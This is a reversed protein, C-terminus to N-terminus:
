INVSLWAILRSGVVAAMLGQWHAQPVADLMTEAPLSVVKATRQFICRMLHKQLNLCWDFTGLILAAKDDYEAAASVYLDAPLSTM